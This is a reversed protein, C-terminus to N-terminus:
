HNFNKHADGKNGYLNSKILYPPDAYVFKDTNKKFSKEFDSSEISVINECKFNRLREISPKNFRPHNPSMGGSLTSGSFSSRNLVFFISAYLFNDEKYTEITERLEYFKEKSIPYFEEVKNALKIPNELLCRWFYVLPEFIDYAFVKVGFNALEIELSGGGFFPSFLKDMKPLYKIIEKVARTKGGPYRLPSKSLRKMYYVKKRKCFKRSLEFM